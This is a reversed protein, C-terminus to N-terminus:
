KDSGEVIVVHADKLKTFNKLNRAEEYAESSKLSSYVFVYFKRDKEHYFIDANYKEDVLKKKYADAGNFDAFGKIVVYYKKKKANDPNNINDPDEQSEQFRALHKENPSVKLTSRLVPTSRKYKKEDSLRVGIQIEHTGSSFGSEPQTGPEFSYGLLFKNYSIGITATFGYNQRYGGGFWFNESLNFKGLVEFQSTGFSSYKYLAYFELPAYGGSTKVRRRVGKVRRSVVKGEIKRKYYLSAYANDLPSIDTSSFSSNANYVPAFLQPLAIGFNLGSSSRFLMGFSAAPQINNALYSAIAPDSLDDPSLKNLDISSTIAGGSLGLFLVNKENFPFGRAYTLSVDTTRLIGRSYNSIKAGIGAYSEDILTNFNVTSLSPAGEVGLWQQRHNVFLYAYETAAEAPNYLYPNIYYSNYVPYNQASIRHCWFFFQVILLVNFLKLM